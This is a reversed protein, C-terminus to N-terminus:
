DQPLTPQFVVVEDGAALAPPTTWGNWQALTQISVDYQQAIAAASEGAAVAHIHRVTGVTATQTERAPQLLAAVKTSPSQVVLKDGIHLVSKASLKNWALLDKTAVGYKKAISSATEGRRVTHTRAAAAAPAAEPKAATQVPAPELKAVSQPAAEAKAVVSKAPAVVKLKQGIQITSRKTLGNWM